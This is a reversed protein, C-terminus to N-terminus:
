FKYGVSVQGVASKGSGFASIINDNGVETLGQNYRVGLFAKNINYRLGATLGANVKKFGDIIISNDINQRVEPNNVLYSVFPGVTLDVVSLKFAVPLLLDVSNMKVSRKQGLYEYDTGKTSFSLEPQLEMFNPVLNIDTFLGIHYGYQNSRDPLNKFSINTANLGGRVGIQAQSQCIPMIAIVTMLLVSIRLKNKM